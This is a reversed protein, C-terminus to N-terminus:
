RDLTFSEDSYLLFGATLRFLEHLSSSIRVRSVTVRISGKWPLEKLWESVERTTQSIYSPITAGEIRRPRFVERTTQSICSPITAGEIRRPRFVERNQGAEPPEPSLVVVNRKIPFNKNEEKELKNDGCPM